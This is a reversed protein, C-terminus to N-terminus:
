WRPKVTGYFKWITQIEPPKNESVKKDLILIM